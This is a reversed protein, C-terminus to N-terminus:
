KVVIQGTMRPHATCFYSYTGPETFVHSFTDDTDLTPSQLLRPKAVSTVTHPADDRNTWTVKTGPAVTLTAPQYSFTSITVKAEPIPAPATAATSDHPAAGDTPGGCGTLLTALFLLPTCHFFPRVM